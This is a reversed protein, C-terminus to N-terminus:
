EELREIIEQVDDIRPEVGRLLVEEPTFRSYEKIWFRFLQVIRLKDKALRVIVNGDNKSLGELRKIEAQAERLQQRATIIEKLEETPIVSMQIAKDHPRYAERWTEVDVHRYDFSDVSGSNAANSRWQNEETYFYNLDLHGDDRVFAIGSPFKEVEEDGAERLSLLEDIMRLQEAESISKLGLVSRKMEELREKTLNSM